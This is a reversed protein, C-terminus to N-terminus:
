KEEMAKNFLEMNKNFQISSIISNLETLSWDMGRVNANILQTETENFLETKEVLRKINEFSKKISEMENRIEDSEKALQMSKNQLIEKKSQKLDWDINYVDKLYYQMLDKDMAWSEGHYEGDIYTECIYKKMIKKYIIRLLVNEEVEIRDMLYEDNKLLCRCENLIEQSPIENNSGLLDTIDSPHLHSWDENTILEIKTNKIVQDIKEEISIDEKIKNFQEMLINTIEDNLVGGNLAVADIIQNRIDKM